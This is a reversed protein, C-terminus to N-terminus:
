GVQRLLAVIQRVWDEALADGGGGGNGNGGRPERERQRQLERQAARSPPHFTRLVELFHHLALPPVDGLAM